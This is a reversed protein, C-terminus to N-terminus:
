LAEHPAPVLCKAKSQVGPPPPGLFGSSKWTQSWRAWALSQCTGALHLVPSILWYFAYHMKPSLM